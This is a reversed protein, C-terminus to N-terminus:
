YGPTSMKTSVLFTINQHEFSIYLVNNLTVKSMGSPVSDYPGTKEAINMVNMLKIVWTKTNSNMLDFLPDTTPVNLLDSYLLDLSYLSDRNDTGGIVDLVISKYNTPITRLNTNIYTTSLADLCKKVYNLEKYPNTYTSHQGTELKREQIAYNKWRPFLYFLTNRFIDPFILKWDGEKKTSHSLIYTKIAQKIADIDNGIRGYLLVVWKTNIQNSANNPDCWNFESTIISSEPLIGKAAQIADTLYNVYYDNLKVNLSAYPLFMDNLNNIPPVVVIENEDYQELFSNNSFWIKVENEIYVTGTNIVTFGIWEPFSVSSTDTIVEGINIGTLITSYQATLATLIDERTNLRTNVDLQLDLLWNAVEFTKTRIITPPTIIGNSDKSSFVVLEIDSNTDIFLQRSRSYTLAQASLEGWASINTPHKTISNSIEMFGKLRYM